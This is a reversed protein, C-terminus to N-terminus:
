AKEFSAQGEEQTWHHPCSQRSRRTYRDDKASITELILFAATVTSQM